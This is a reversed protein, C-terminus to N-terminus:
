GAWMGCSVIADPHDLQLQAAVVYCSMPWSHVLYVLVPGLSKQWMQNIQNASREPQSVGLLAIAQWSCVAWTSDNWM